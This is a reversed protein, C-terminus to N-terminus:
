KFRIVIKEKMEINTKGLKRLKDIAKKWLEDRQEDVASFKVPCDDSIEILLRYITKLFVMTDSRLSDESAKYNIDGVEMLRKWFTFNIELYQFLGTKHDNRISLFVAREYAKLIFLEDKGVYNKPFKFRKYLTLDPNNKIFNIADIGIIKALREYGKDDCKEFGGQKENLFENPDISKIGPKEM